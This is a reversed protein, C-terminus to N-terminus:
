PCLVSIQQRQQQDIISTNPDAQDILYCVACEINISSGTEEDTLYINEDEETLLYCNYDVPPDPPLPPIIKACPFALPFGIGKNGSSIVLYNPINKILCRM